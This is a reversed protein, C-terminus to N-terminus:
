RFAPGRTRNSWQGLGSSGTEIAKDCTVNRPPPGSNSYAAGGASVCGPSIVMNDAAQANAGSGLRARPADGRSRAARGTAPRGVSTRALSRPLGRRAWRQRARAPHGDLTRRHIRAKWRRVPVSRRPTQRRADPSGALWGASGNAPGTATTWCGPCRSQEGALYERGTSRNSLVPRHRLSGIPVKGTWM